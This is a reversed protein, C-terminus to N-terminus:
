RRFPDVVEIGLYEREHAFDESYVIDCESLYASAIILSDWWSLGYVKQVERARHLVRMDIPSPKWSQLDRIDAWADDPSLGPDLKRTVTVYYESCVQVSICGRREQWLMRLLEEAIPQKEPESLDRAYVLVNTDVFSNGSM